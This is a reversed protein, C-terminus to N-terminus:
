VDDGEIDVSEVSDSSDAPPLELNAELADLTRALNQLQINSILTQLELNGDMEPIDSPVGKILQDLGRHAAVIAVQTSVVLQSLTMTVYDLQQAYLRLATNGDLTAGAKLAKDIAAQLANIAESLNLNNDEDTLLTLIETAGM